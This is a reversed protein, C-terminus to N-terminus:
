SGAGEKAGGSGGRGDAGGGRGDHSIGGVTEAGAAGIGSKPTDAELRESFGAGDGFAGADTAASTGTGVSMTSFIACRTTAWTESFSMRSIAQSTIGSRASAKIVLSIS